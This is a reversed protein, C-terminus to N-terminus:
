IISVIPPLGNQEFPPERAMLYRDQSDVFLQDGMCMIEQDGEGVNGCM